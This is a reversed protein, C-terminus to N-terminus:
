KIKEIYRYNDGEVSFQCKWINGTINDILLFTWMNNTFTLYFRKLLNKQSVLSSKNISWFGQSHDLSFQVQWVRGYFTDLLLFNWMNYTPYLEFRGDKSESADAIDSVIKIELNPNLSIQKVSGTRTDLRL